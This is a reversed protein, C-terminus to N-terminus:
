GVLLMIRNNLKSLEETLRKQLNETYKIRILFINNHKCYDNKIKDCLQTEKFTDLSKKSNSWPKFHLEGDFEICINNNPLYFDFKLYQKNKCESFVKQVEYNINHKDLFLSIATEGKSSKCKPCGHGSLHAHPSQNFIRHIPCIIKVKTETNIYDSESYEYKGNHINQALEIFKENSYSLNKIRDVICCKKCGMGELHSKACQEFVGHKHCIINVKINNNIYKVLSYDYKNEHIIKAKDIFSETTDTKLKIRCKECGHGNIHNEARQEFSGHTKCIIEVKSSNNRYNVLSYDYKNGHVKKVREIFEKTTLKRM